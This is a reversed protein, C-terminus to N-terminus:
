TSRTSGTIFGCTTSPAKHTTTVRLLQDHTDEKGKKQTKTLDRKRMDKSALRPRSVTKPWYVPTLHINGKQTSVSLSKVHNVTKGKAAKVVRM